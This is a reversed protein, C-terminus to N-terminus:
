ISFFLVILVTKWVFSVVNCVLATLQCYFIYKVFQLFSLIKLLVLNTYSTFNFSHESLLLFKVLMINSYLMAHLCLFIIFVAGLTHAKLFFFCGGGKRGLFHSFNRTYYDNPSCGKNNLRVM